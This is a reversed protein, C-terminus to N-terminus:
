PLVEDALMVIFGVKRFHFCQPMQITLKIKLRLQAILLSFDVLTLHMAFSNRLINEPELTFDIGLNRRSHNCTWLPRHYDIRQSQWVFREGNALKDLM